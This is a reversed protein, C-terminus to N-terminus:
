PTPCPQTFTGKCEKHNVSSAELGTLIPTHELSGTFPTLTIKPFTRAPPLTNEEGVMTPLGSKHPEVLKTVLNGMVVGALQKTELWSIPPFQHGKLSM